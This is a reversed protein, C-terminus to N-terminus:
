FPQQPLKNGHGAEVDFELPLDKASMVLGAAMKKIKSEGPCSLFGRGFPERKTQFQYM